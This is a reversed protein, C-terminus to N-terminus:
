LLEIYEAPKVGFEKQFCKSFYSPSSFGVMNVVMLTKPLVQKVLLQYLSTKLCPLQQVSLVLKMYVKKFM